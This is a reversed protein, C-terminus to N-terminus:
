IAFAVLQSPTFPEANLNGKKSAAVVLKENLLCCLKWFIIMIITKTVLSLHRFWEARRMIASGKSELKKKLEVLKAEMGTDDADITDTM